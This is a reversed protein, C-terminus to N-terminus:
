KSTSFAGSSTSSRRTSVPSLPFLDRWCYMQKLRSLYDCPPSISTRTHRLHVLRNEPVGTERRGNSACWTAVILRVAAVSDIACNGAHGDDCKTAM